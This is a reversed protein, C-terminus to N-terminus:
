ANKVEKSFIRKYNDRIRIARKLLAIQEEADVISAILCVDRDGKARLQKWHKLRLEILKILQENTFEM